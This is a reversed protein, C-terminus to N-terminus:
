CTVRGLVDGHAGQESGPAQRPRADLGHRVKTLVLGDHPEAQHLGVGRRDDVAGLPYLVARPRDRLRPRPPGEPEGDM